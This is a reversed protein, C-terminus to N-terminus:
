PELEGVYDWARPGYTWCCSERCFRLVPGWATKPLAMSPGVATYRNNFGCCTQLMNQDAVRIGAAAAVVMRFESSSCTGCDADQAGGPRWIPKCAATIRPLDLLEASLGTQFDYANSCSSNLEFLGEWVQPGGRWCDQDLRHGLTTLPLSGFPQERCLFNIKSYIEPWDGYVRYLLQTCACTECKRFLRFDKDGRDPM